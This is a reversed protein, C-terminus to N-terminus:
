IWEKCFEAIHQGKLMEEIWKRRKHIENFSLSIKEFGPFDHLTASLKHLRKVYNADLKIFTELWKGM